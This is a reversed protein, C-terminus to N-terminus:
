PRGLLAAIRIEVVKIPADTHWQQLMPLKSVVQVGPGESGVLEGIVKGDFVLETKSETHRIETKM